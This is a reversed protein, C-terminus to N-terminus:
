PAVKGSGCNCCKRWFSETARKRSDRFGSGSRARANGANEARFMALALRDIEIKRLRPIALGGFQEQFSRQCVGIVSRGVYEGAITQAAIWGCKPFELCVTLDRAVAALSGAGVAIVPDFGIVAVDFPSQM